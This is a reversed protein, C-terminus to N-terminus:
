IINPQKVAELKLIVIVHFLCFDYRVLVDLVIDEFRRSSARVIDLSNLWEPDKLEPYIGVPRRSLRALTVYEDM